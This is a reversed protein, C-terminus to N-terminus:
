PLKLFCSSVSILLSYRLLTLSGNLSPELSRAILIDQPATDPCFFAQPLGFLLSYILFDRFVTWFFSNM